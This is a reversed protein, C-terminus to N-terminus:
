DNKLKWKIIEQKVLDETSPEANGLALLWGEGSPSKNYYNQVPMWVGNHWYRYYTNDDNRDVVEFIKLDEKWSWGHHIYFGKEIM